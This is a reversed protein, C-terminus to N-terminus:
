SRSPPRTERDLSRMPVEIGSEKYRNVVEKTLDRGPYTTIEEKEPDWSGLIEPDNITRKDAGLKSISIVASGKLGLVSGIIGSQFTEITERQSVIDEIPFKSDPVDPLGFVGVPTFPDPVNQASGGMFFHEQSTLLYSLPIGKPAEDVM